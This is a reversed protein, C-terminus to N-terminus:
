SMRFSMGYNVGLPNSDTNKTTRGGGGTEVTYYVGIVTGNATDGGWPDDFTTDAQYVYKASGGVFEYYWKINNTVAFCPCYAQGNVATGPTGFTVESEVPDGSATTGSDEALLDTPVPTAENVDYVAVDFAVSAVGTWATVSVINGDEASTYLNGAGNRLAGRAVGTTTSSSSPASTEGYDGDVDWWDALLNFAAAPFAKVLRQNETDVEWEGWAFGGLSDRIFPRYIQAFKGIKYNRQGVVHNCKTKHYLSVSHIVHDPRYGGENIEEQTLEPQIAFFVKDWGQVVPFYFRIKGDLDTHPIQNTRDLRITVKLGNFTEPIATDPHDQRSSLRMIKGQGFDGTVETTDWEVSSPVGWDRYSIIVDDAEGWPDIRIGASTPDTLDVLWLSWEETNELQWLDSTLQKIGM